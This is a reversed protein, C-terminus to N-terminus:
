GAGTYALDTKQFVDPVPYTGLVFNLVASHEQDVCQLAGALTIADKDQITPLVALYTDAATQELMRALTAAGTVDKVGAFAQDVTAKLDAPPASVAQGGAKTIAGNWADLAAQHHAMATQVFTAVAPPVEGLKGATAADLAAKYTGVALVELSAAIGAIKADGGSAAMTTPASAPATTAAAGTTAGTSAGTTASSSANTNDSGCAVAVVGLGLVGAATLFGRRSWSTPSAEAISGNTPETM